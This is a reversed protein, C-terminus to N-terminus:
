KIQKILVISNSHYDIDDSVRRTMAPTRGNTKKMTAQRALMKAERLARVTRRVTRMMAIVTVRAARTRRRSAIM